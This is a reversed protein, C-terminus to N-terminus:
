TKALAPEGVELGLLAAPSTIPTIQIIVPTLGTFDGRRLQEAMAPDFTMTVGRGSKEIDLGMANGNLDIGGEMNVSAKDTTGGLAKLLARRIDDWVNGASNEGRYIEPDVKARFVMTHKGQYFVLDGDNTLDVHWLGMGDLWLTSGITVREFRGDDAPEMGEIQKRLETKSLGRQIELIGPKQASDMGRVPASFTGLLAGRINDWIYFGNGPGAYIVPPIKARFVLADSDGQKFELIGTQTLEFKWFIGLGQLVITSGTRAAWFDDDSGLGEIKQLLQEKSFGNIDYIKTEQAKDREKISGKAADPNRFALQEEDDADTIEVTQPQKSWWSPKDVPKDILKEGVATMRKFEDQLDKATSGYRGVVEVYVKLIQQTGSPRVLLWNGNDLVLKLGDITILDVVKYGEASVQKVISIDQLPVGHKLEQQVEAIKKSLAEKIGDSEKTSMTEILFRKDLAKLIAEKYENLSKGTKARIWLGMLGVVIGDDWSRMFPGVGVHASEEGAVLYTQGKNVTNDVFHKFGVPVEDLQLGLEKAILNIFNSAAVTKGIAGKLGIEKKLFWAILAIMDNAPVFSGDPDINGFRDADGDVSAGFGNGDLAKVADVLGQRSTENDPRPEGNVNTFKADPQENILTFFGSRGAAEGIATYLEKLYVGGTGQMADVVMHFDPEQSVFRVIDDWAGIEQLKPIIYGHVYGSVVLRSDIENIREFDIAKQHDYIGYETNANAWLTLENTVVEPASGGHEPSFKFGDDTWPNHSATFNIVGGIKKDNGALFALVPTPTPASALLMVRIGNAAFIDAAMKAFGANGERPDYGILIKKGPSAEKFYDATGQALRAVHLADFDQGLKGRDGSTGFKVPRTELISRLQKIETGQLFPVEEMGIRVDICLIDSINLIIPSAGPKSDEPYFYLMDHQISHFKANVIRGDPIFRRKKEKDTLTIDIRTKKPVAGTKQFEIFNKVTMLKSVDARNTKESFDTQVGIVAIASPILSNPNAEPMSNEPYFFIRGDTGVSYFSANAIEGDPYDTLLKGANHSLLINIKMDWPIKGAEALATFEEVSMLKKGEAKDVRQSFDLKIKVEGDNGAPKLGSITEPDNKAAFDLTINGAVGGSFYKRPTIEGTQPDAEEKILNVAGTRYAALYQEFIKEKAKPDRAAVGGTKGKDTYVQNLLADKLAKKYWTALIMSHFMQRLPAFNRGENIEQEIAPLIIQRILGKSLETQADGQQPRGLAAGVGNHDMALYDSELMVKLHSAVVFASGDREFVKAKDAMIWVKNFTDVPIDSTGFQARAESYVRDWFKRGLDKEPNMFSATLQKLLYDQALMEQGMETQGLDVSLMRDKEYPSLNVWLDKEKITLAALFYKILKQSENKFAQSDIKFGSHGSDVIFDLLVPNDPHVKMGKILVPIYSPSTSLTTGPQPLLSQARSIGPGFALLVSLVVSIISRVM